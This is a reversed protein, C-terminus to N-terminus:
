NCYGVNGVRCGIWWDGRVGSYRNLLGGPPACLASRQLLQRAALINVMRRAVRAAQYFLCPSPRSLAPALRNPAIWKCLHIRKGGTAHQTVCVEGAVLKGFGKLRIPGSRVPQPPDRNDARDAM